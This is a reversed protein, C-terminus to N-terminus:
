SDRAGHAILSTYGVEFTLFSNEQNRIQRIDLLTSPISRKRYFYNVIVPKGKESRGYPLDNIRYPFGQAKAYQSIDQELAQWYDLRKKNYIEEYLPFLDPHKERIYTM